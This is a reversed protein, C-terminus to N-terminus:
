SKSIIQYMCFVAMDEEIGTHTTVVIEFMIPTTQAAAAKQPQLAQIRSEVYLNATTKTQLLLLVAVVLTLKFIM